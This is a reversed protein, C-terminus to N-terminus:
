PRHWSAEANGLGGIPKGDVLINSLQTVFRNKVKARDAASMRGMPAEELPGFKASFTQLQAEDIPQDRLRVVGFRLWAAYLEDFDADSIEAVAVNEVDAVFDDGVPRIDIM